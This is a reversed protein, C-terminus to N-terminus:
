RRATCTFLWAFFLIACEVTQLATLLRERDEDACWVWGRWGIVPAAYEIARTVITRPAPAFEGVFPLSAPPHVPFLLPSGREAVVPPVAYFSPEAQEPVLAWAVAQPGLSRIVEGQAGNRGDLPLLMATLEMAGSAAVGLGRDHIFRPVDPRRM